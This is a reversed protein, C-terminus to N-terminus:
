LCIWATCKEVPPVISGLWAHSTRRPILVIGSRTSFLESLAKSTALNRSFCGLTFHTFYGPRLDCGCYSSALFCIVPKPAMIHKSTSPPTSPPLVTIFLTFSEVRATERPPMSLRMWCGAEIVWAPMVLSFRAPAPMVSPM